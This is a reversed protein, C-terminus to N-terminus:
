SRTLSDPHLATDLFATIDALLDEANQFLHFHHGKRELLSFPGTTVSAWGALLVADVLPDSIGHYCRVPCPLPTTGPEPRYEEHATIDTRLVPLLVDMLEPEDAIDPDVGGLSGILHWLEGDSLQGARVQGVAGPPPCSSTLLGLPGRGLTDLTLSTEYAVLAGLSHGFLVTPLPPLRLLESSLESSLARVDASLPEGFRDGHGPYQVALLEV